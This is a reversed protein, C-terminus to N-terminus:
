HAGRAENAAPACTAVGADYPAPQRTADRGPACAGILAPAACRSGARANILRSNSM